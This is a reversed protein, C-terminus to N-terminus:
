RRVCYDPLPLTRSAAVEVAAYRGASFAPCDRAHGAGIIAAGLDVGDVYCVGVMRDHTREGTLDCTVLKGTIMRVMAETAEHGGPESREPAAVGNLRVPVGAVVITDGDRARASGSITEGALAHSSLLILALVTRIM